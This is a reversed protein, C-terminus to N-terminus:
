GYLLKSFRMRSTYFMHRVRSLRPCSTRPTDKSMCENLYNSHNVDMWRNQKMSRM